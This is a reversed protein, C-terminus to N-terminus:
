GRERGPGFLGRATKSYRPLKHLPSKRIHYERNNGTVNSETMPCCDTFSAATRAAGCRARGTKSFPYWIGTSSNKRSIEWILLIFNREATRRYKLGTCVKARPAGSRERRTKWCPTSLQRSRLRIRFSSCQSMLIASQPNRIASQHRRRCESIRMGCDAARRISAACDQTLQM